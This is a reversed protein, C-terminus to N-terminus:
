GKGIKLGSRCIQMAWHAMARNSSLEFHKEETIKNSVEVPRIGQSILRTLICLIRSPELLNNPVRTSVESIDSLRHLIAWWPSSARALISDPLSSLRIWIADITEM